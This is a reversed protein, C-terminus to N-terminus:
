RQTRLERFDSDPEWGTVVVFYGSLRSPSNALTDGGVCGERLHSGGSDDTGYMLLRGDPSFSPRNGEPVLERVEGGLSPVLYIGGGQRESRFVIQTGNPSFSPDHDDAPDDTIRIASGGDVQQVWIDRNTSNAQPRSYAM